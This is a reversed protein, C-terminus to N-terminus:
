RPTAALPPLFGVDYSKSLMQLDRQVKRQEWGLLERERRAQELDRSKAAQETQLRFHEPLFTSMTDCVQAQEGAINARTLKAKEFQEHFVDLERQLRGRKEALSESVTELVFQRQRRDVELARHAEAAQLCQAELAALEEDLQHRLAQQEVLLEETRRNDEALHRQARQLEHLEERAVAWGAKARDRAARAEECQLRAAEAERRLEENRLRAAQWQQREAEQEVQIDSATQHAADAAAGAVAHEERVLDEYTALETVLAERERRADDAAVKSLRIRERLAAVEADARKIAQALQANEAQVGEQEKKQAEIHSEIMRTEQDCQEIDRALRTTEMQGRGIDQSTTTILANINALKKRSKGWM